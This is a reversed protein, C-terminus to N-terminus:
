KMTTPSEGAAFSCAPTPGGDVKFKLRLEFDGFEKKTCLFENREIRKKPTGAVIAGDQIRFMELNGEWGDFTRGDFLPRFSEADDASAAGTLAALIACAQLCPKM